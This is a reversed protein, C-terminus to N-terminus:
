TFQHLKTKLQWFRWYDASLSRSCYHHAFVQLEALSKLLKLRLKFVSSKSM